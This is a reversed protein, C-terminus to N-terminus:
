YYWDKKVEARPKHACPRMAKIVQQCIIGMVLLKRYAETTIRM